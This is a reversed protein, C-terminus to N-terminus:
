LSSTQAELVAGPCLDGTGNRRDRCVVSRIVIPQSYVTTDIDRRVDLVGDYVTHIVVGLERFDRATKPGELEGLGVRDCSVMLVNRDGAPTNAFDKIM